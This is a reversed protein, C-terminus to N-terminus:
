RKVHDVAMNARSTHFARTSTIPRQLSITSGLATPFHQRISRSAMKIQMEPRLAWVNYVRALPRMESASFLRARLLRRWFDSIYAWPLAPKLNTLPALIIECRGVGSASYKGHSRIKASLRFLPPQYHNRSCDTASSHFRKKPASNNEARSGSPSNAGGRV